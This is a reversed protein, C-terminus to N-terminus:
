ASRGSRTVADWDIEAGDLKRPKANIFAWSSDATRCIRFKTIVLSVPQKLDNAVSKSEVDLIAQREADKPAYCELSGAAAESGVGTMASLAIATLLSVRTPSHM